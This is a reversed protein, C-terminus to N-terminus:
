DDLWGSLDRNLIKATEEITEKFNEKLFAKEEENMKAPVFQRERIKLFWKRGTAEPIIKAVLNKIVNSQASVVWSRKDKKVKGARNYVKGLDDPMIPEVGLFDYIEGMIRQPDKKMDDLLYIYVDDFEKLVEKLHKPYDYTDFFSAFRSVDASNEDKDKKAKKVWSLFDPESLRGGMYLYNYFSYSAEIPNRLAIVLKPQKGKPYVKKVNRILNEYYKMYTVTLEGCIKNKGKRFMRSYKDVDIVSTERIVDSEFRMEEASLGYFIFFRPEKPTSLLIQPHFFLYQYLSTSGCRPYGAVIFDPLNINKKSI